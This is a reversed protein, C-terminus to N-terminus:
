QLWVLATGEGQKGQQIRESKIPNLPFKQDSILFIGKARGPMLNNMAEKLFCQKQRFAKLCVFISYLFHIYSIYILSFLLLVQWTGVM